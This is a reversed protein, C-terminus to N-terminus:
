IKLGRRVIEQDLQSLEGDYHLVERPDTQKRALELTDHHLKLLDEDSLESPKGVKRLRNYLDGNM